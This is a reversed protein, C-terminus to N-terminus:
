HFSYRTFISSPKADKVLSYVVPAIIKKLESTQTYSIRRMQLITVAKEEFRRKITISFNLKEKNADHIDTFLRDVISEVAHLDLKMQSGFSLDKNKHM